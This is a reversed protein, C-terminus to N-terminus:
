EMEPSIGKERLCSLIMEEEFGKSLLFLICTGLESRSPSKGGLRKELWDNCNKRIQEKPLNSVASFITSDSFGRERLYNSIKQPGSKRTQLQLDLLNQLVRSDDLLHTEKATELFELILDPEYGKLVLFSRVEESTRDRTKLFRKLNKLIGTYVATDLM